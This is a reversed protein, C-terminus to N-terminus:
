NSNNFLFCTHLYKVVAIITSMIIFLSVTCTFLNFDTAKSYLIIILMIILIIIPKM